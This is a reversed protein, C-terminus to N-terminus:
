GLAIRGKRVHVWIRVALALNTLGGVVLLVLNIPNYDGHLPGKTLMDMPTLLLGLLGSITVALGYVTGFTV